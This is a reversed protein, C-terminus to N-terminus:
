QARLVEGASAASMAGAIVFPRSRDLNINYYPDHFQESRPEWRADFFADDDLHAKYGRTASEHHYLTAYPTYVVRYGAQRVRLCLDVDNFAVRLREEFGGIEHFVSPRMMTVAGTVATCDRVVDGFGWWGGHDINGAAGACYNVVIGEHQIRDDPYYLRCGVAGVEPRQAHEILAEMWGPEIVETDNNLYLLLDGDAAWSALNMMRAYNFRHPYRLVRGGFTALYALTGPDDSENDVVLFEYNTYTSRNRVSDIARRLLHEGNRTPIIITVKPSGIVDYRLRYTSALIGDTAQGTYGRRVLAEDLARKSADFAYPKADVVAATSGPVQRWTYLPEAVHEVRDTLESLRLVLDHDQSGDFGSRLGGVQEVLSRRAVTLHSMYNRSTLHEPSWDPKFFPSILRGGVDMKDEDTYVLDITPDAVLCRAVEALAHPKLLDDHDIFGIFDGAVMAIAANTAGSIGQNQELLRVRIRPERAAWEQLAARTDPRPSCDDAICLEWHPYVQDVISQLTDALVSPESDYTPMVLSIVPGDVEASWARLADLREQSPQMLALWGAYQTDADLTCPPAAQIRPQRLDAPIPNMPPPTPPTPAGVPVLPGDPLLDDSLPPPVGLWALEHVLARRYAVRGGARADSAAQAQYWAQEDVLLDRARLAMAYPDDCVVAPWTDGLDLATAGHPLSLLPTGTAAALSAVSRLGDGHPYPALVALASGVASLPDAGLPEVVVGPEDALGRVLPSPQDALVRLTADPLASRLAPLVVRAAMVAADEHSAITDAGPTALVVLGTRGSRGGSGKRVLPDPLQLVRKAPYLGQVLRRDDASAVLALDTREISAAVRERLLAGLGHLGRVEDKRELAPELSLVRRLDLAPALLVRRAAPLNRDVLEAYRHETRVGVSFVTSFAHQHAAFWTPADPCDAIVDVGLARWDGAPGHPRGQESSLLTLPLDPWLAVLSRLLETEPHDWRHAPDPIREVLVLFRESEAPPLPIGAPAAVALPADHVLVAHRPLAIALEGAPADFRVAAAGQALLRAVRGAAAPPLPAGATRVLVVSATAADLARQLQVGGTAGDPFSAEGAAAASAPRVVVDAGAPDADGTLDLLVVCARAPQSV